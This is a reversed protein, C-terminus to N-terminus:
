YLTVNTSHDAYMRKFLHKEKKVLGFTGAITGLPVLHFVIISWYCQIQWTKCIIETIIETVSSAQAQQSARPGVLSEENYSLGDSYSSIAQNNNYKM